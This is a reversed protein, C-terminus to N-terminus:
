NWDSIQNNGAQTADAAMQEGILEESRLRLRESRSVLRSAKEVLRLFESETLEESRRLEGITTVMSQQESEEMYFGMDNMSSSRDFAPNLRVEGNEVQDFMAGEVKDAKRKLERRVVDQKRKLMTDAKSLENEARKSSADIERMSKQAEAVQQQTATVQQQAEELMKRAREEAAIAARSENEARLLARQGAQMQDDADAKEELRKDFELEAASFAEIDQRVPHKFTMTQLLTIEDSAGAQTLGDLYQTADASTFNDSNTQFTLRLRESKIETLQELVQMSEARTEDARQFATTFYLHMHAHNVCTKGLFLLLSSCM